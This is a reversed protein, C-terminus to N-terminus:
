HVWKKNMRTVKKKTRGLGNGISSNCDRCMTELNTIEHSGGLSRAVKHNATLPNDADGAHGCRVCYPNRKLVIARNKRYRRTNWYGKTM